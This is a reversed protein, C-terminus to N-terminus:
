AAALSKSRMVPLREAIIAKADAIEAETPSPNARGHSSQFQWYLPSRKASFWIGMASPPRGTTPNRIGEAALLDRVNRVSGQVLWLAYMLEPDLYYAPIEKRGLAM